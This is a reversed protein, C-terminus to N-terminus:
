SGSGVIARWMEVIPGVIPPASRHQHAARVEFGDHPGAFTGPPNSEWASGGNSGAPSVGVSRSGFSKPPFSLPRGGGPLRGWSEAFNLEALSQQVGCSRRQAKEEGDQELNGRRGLRAPVQDSFAKDARRSRDLHWERIPPSLQRLTNNFFSNLRTNQIRIPVFQMYRTAHIKGCKSEVM